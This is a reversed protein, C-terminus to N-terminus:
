RKLEVHVKEALDDSLGSEIALELAKLSLMRYIALTGPSLAQLTKLHQRITEVDGRAVPGTLSKLEGLELCNELSSRMLPGLMPRILSEPVGATLMLEHAERMLVPIFNAAFVAAAHYVSKGQSPLRVPLGGILKVLDMLLPVLRDDGEVAFYVDNLTPTPGKAPFTQLPHLSGVPVNAAALGTLAEGALAGSVHAVGDLNTLPLLKIIIRDVVVLQDDPVAVILLRTDDQILNFDSGARDIGLSQALDRAVGAHRDVIVTLRLGVHSISKALTRGVAGAGILGIGIKLPKDNFIM